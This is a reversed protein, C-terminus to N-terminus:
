FLPHKMFFDVYCNPQYIRTGDLNDVLGYYTAIMLMFGIFYKKFYKNLGRTITMILLLNITGFIFTILLIINGIKENCLSLMHPNTNTNMEYINVDYHKLELLNLLCFGSNWHLIVGTMVTFFILMNEDFEEINFFIFFFDLYLMLYWHLWRWFYLKITQKRKLKCFHQETYFSLILLITSLIGIKLYGNM